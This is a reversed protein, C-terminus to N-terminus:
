FRGSLGAGAPGIDVRIRHGLFASETEKATGHTTLALIVTVVAGAIATGALVDTVLAFTKTKDRMDGIKNSAPTNLAEDYQSKSVLALSGMVIAGAGLTTTTVIGIWTATSPGGGTHPTSPPPPTTVIVPNSGSGGDSPPPNTTTTTTPQTAIELDVSADDGGAVDVTRSQQGSGAKSVAIKRRGASVLVPSALPTKGVLVDDVLVDAGEINSKITVRAVRGELKRIEGDVQTRRDRPVDKGGEDLYKRFSTLAAAYDQLELNTQGLNYLVKYNPAAEYARKFEILAARFDNEKYFQVGRQFHARGEDTSQALTASSTALVLAFIPAQLLRM